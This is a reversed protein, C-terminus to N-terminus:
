GRGATAKVGKAANDVANGTADAANGMANGTADAANEMAQGANNAAQGANDVTREAPPNTNPTSDMEQAMAGAATLGTVALAASMLKLKTNM